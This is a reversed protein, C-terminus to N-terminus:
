MCSPPCSLICRSGRSVPMSAGLTVTASCFKLGSSWRSFARGRLPIRLAKIFMALLMMHPVGFPMCVFLPQRLTAPRADYALRVGNPIGAENCPGGQEDAKGDHHVPRNAENDDVRLEAPCIRELCRHLVAKAFGPEHGYRERLPEQVDDRRSKSLCTNVAYLAKPPMTANQTMMPSVMGLTRSERNGESASMDNRHSSVLLRAIMIRSMRPM